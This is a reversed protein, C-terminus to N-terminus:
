KESYKTTPWYVEIRTEKTFKCGDIYWQIVHNKTKPNRLKM